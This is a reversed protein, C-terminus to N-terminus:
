QVSAIAERNDSASRTSSDAAAAYPPTKEIDRKLTAAYRPEFGKLRDHIRRAEGSEGLHHLTMGLQYYGYPSFPQLEINKKLVDVSERLRGLRILVLGLGYWARDITPKLEVARRFCREADALMERQEYIYGLNFWGEANTPDVAVLREFAQAAGASDGTDMLLNGFASRAVHDDPDLALLRRYCELAATNRKLLVAVNARQNIWWRTLWREVASM